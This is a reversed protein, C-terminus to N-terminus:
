LPVGSRVTGQAPSVGKNDGVREICSIDSTTTHSAITNFKKPVDSVNNGTTSQDPGM